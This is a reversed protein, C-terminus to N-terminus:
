HGSHRVSMWWSWSGRSCRRRGGGIRMRASVRLKVPSSEGKREGDDSGSRVAL